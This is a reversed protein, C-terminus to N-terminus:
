RVKEHNLRSALLSTAVETRHQASLPSPYFKYQFGIRGQPSEELGDLGNFDGAADSFITVQKGNRRGEHFRLLDVIRAFEKGGETGKPLIEWLSRVEPLRTTAM